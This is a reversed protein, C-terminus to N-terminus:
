RFQVSQETGRSVRHLASPEAVGQTLYSRRFDDDGGSGVSHADYLVLGSFM